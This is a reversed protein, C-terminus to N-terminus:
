SPGNYINNKYNWLKTFLSSSSERKPSKFYVTSPNLLWHVNSIDDWHKSLSTRLFILLNEDESLSKKSCM